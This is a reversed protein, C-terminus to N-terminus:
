FLRGFILNIVFCILIGATLPTIISLFTWKVSKTEKWITLLTTSCPFHFMSFLCTCLATVPTWGNNVLIDKLDSLSSYDNLQGSSLYVMLIIPIVIENAPFGLIFGILIVGDLGILRGLPDLFDSIISLLMTGNISINNLIWIILGAPAAVAVARLLVFLVKEKATQGIIKLFQPKRYPPLELVFSSPEGKLVTKTLVGSAALTAAMSLAIFMLLILASLFSNKSFFMAIVAILLPFRGNCPSFSNTIIAIIRERPSDIIRAGTVGVANCGYGMCTTLAQKGCAGCSKFCPDLNFAIRPLVGFDELITFLPFFIAMPPLMVAVVWLLVKLVGNVLLDVWLQSFGAQLMSDSLFLEFSDFAKRLLDSPYNSGAITIWLVVAFIVLMSLISTGKGMLLKDLFQERKEAKSPFKVSVSKAIHKSRQFVSLTLAETFNENAMNFRELVNVAKIFASKEKLDEPEENNELMRIARYKPIGATKMIRLAQEIPSVYTVGIISNDTSNTVLLHIEELLNNIGKGSRATAKVVPVGLMESLLKENIEINHKKAEDCLNLLVVVKDSAEMVQLALNLNRELNTADVVCVLCDYDLTEVFDRTVEEEKSSAVLSYTGPLDILEYQNYKYYFRGVASDVTKGTWNGTHQNSGTLENFVTSKGVNPNGVLAVRRVKNM